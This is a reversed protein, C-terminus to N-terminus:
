YISKEVHGCFSPRHSTTQACIEEDSPAVNQESLKELESISGSEPVVASPAIQTAEPLKAHGCFSPKPVGEIACVDQHSATQSEEGASIAVAVGMMLVGLPKSNMFNKSM